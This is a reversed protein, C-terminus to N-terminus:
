RKKKRGTQKKKTGKGRKYGDVRVRSKGANPGRPSRTHSPVAVASGAGPKRKRKKRGVTKNVIM